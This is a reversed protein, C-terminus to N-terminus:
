FLYEIEVDEHTVTIRNVCSRIAKKREIQTMNEWMGQLNKIIIHQEKINDEIEKIANESNLKDLINNLEVKTDEIVDLLLDDASTSYVNYLRKIKAATIDYQKQLVNLIDSRKYLTQNIPETKNIKKFLDLLVISELEDSNIKHNDCNSDKILNVKSKQQSYCYIKIDSKGWKQYRMKAGCVGCYVIGSLLYESNSMSVKTRKRREEKVKNFINNDIIAEHMGDIIEGNYKIKGTYTERDLINAVMKDGGPFNYIKALKTTSYGQLYLDFIERIKEADQNPILIGKSKDYDYGLPVRGGGMWLGRRVRETMGMRTRERINERELQAFVSLIGIMAKGYPTTTDFNENLSIFNTNHPNLVDELFFITDKQSRSLRDLKYVVVSEILNAKIEKVLRTIEPRNFNSGSFGGDIYIEYNEVNKLECWQKLKKEQAEISYGEEAQSDTSVRIYLATKRIKVENINKKM